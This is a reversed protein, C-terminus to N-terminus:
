RFAINYKKKIKDKRRKNKPHTPLIVKVKRTEVENIGM